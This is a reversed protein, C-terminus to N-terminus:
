VIFFHGWSLNFLRRLVLYSHLKVALTVVLCLDSYYITYLINVSDGLVKSFGWINYLKLKFM